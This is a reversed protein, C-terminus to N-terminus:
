HSHTEAPRKRALLRIVALAVAALTWVAVAEFVFWYEGLKEGDMNFHYAEFERVIFFWGLAGGYYFAIGAQLVLLAVGIGRALRFFILLTFVALLIVGLLMLCLRWTPPWMVSSLASFWSVPVNYDSSARTVSAAQFLLAGLALFSAAIGVLSCTIYRVTQTFM